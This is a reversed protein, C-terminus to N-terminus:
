IKKKMKKMSKKNIFYDYANFNSDKSKELLDMLIRNLEESTIIFNTKEQM